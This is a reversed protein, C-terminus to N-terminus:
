RKREKRRYPTVYRDACLRCYARGHDPVVTIDDLPDASCCDCVVTDKPIPISEVTAKGAPSVGMVLIPSRPYAALFEERNMEEARTRPDNPYEFEFEKM